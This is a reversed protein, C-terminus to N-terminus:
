LLRCQIKALEDRRLSFQAGSALQVAFPPRGFLGKAVIKIATNPLFGLDHLRKSVLADESGFAPNSVVQEIYAIQQKALQLLDISQPTTVSKTVSNASPRALLGDATGTAPHALTPMSSTM